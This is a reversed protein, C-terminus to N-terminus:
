SSRLVVTALSHAPLDLRWTGRGNDRVPLDSPAVRDPEDASNAADATPATLIRASASGFGTAGSEICVEADNKLHRNILTVAVTPVVAHSEDAVVGAISGTSVQAPILLASFLLLCAVQCVRRAFITMRNM